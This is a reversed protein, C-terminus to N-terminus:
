QVPDKLVKAPMEGKEKFEKLDEIAKSLPRTRSCCCYTGLFGDQNKYVYLLWEEKEKFGKMCGDVRNRITVVSEIDRKWAKKVKLKIIEVYHGTNQDADTKKIKLVEGILVVDALKFENHPTIDVYTPVCSCQATADSAGFASTVIFVINLIWSTRMALGNIMVLLM